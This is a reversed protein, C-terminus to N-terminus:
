VDVFSAFAGVNGKQYKSKTVKHMTLACDMNVCMGCVRM